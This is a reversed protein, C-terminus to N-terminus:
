LPANVTWGNDKDSKEKPTELPQLRDWSPVHLSWVSLWAPSQFWSREQQTLWQVIKCGPAIGEDKIWKQDNVRCCIWLVAAADPFFVPLGSAYLKVTLYSEARCQAGDAEGYFSFLFSCLAKFNKTSTLFWIDWLVTLLSTFVIKHVTLIRLGLKHKCCCLEAILTQLSFPIGWHKDSLSLLSPTSIMSHVGTCNYDAHTKHLFAAVDGRAANSSDLHLTFSTCGRSRTWM